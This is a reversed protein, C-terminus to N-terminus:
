RRSFAFEIADTLDVNMVGISGSIDILALYANIVTQRIEVLERLATCVDEEEPTAQRLDKMRCYRAFLQELREESLVDPKGNM